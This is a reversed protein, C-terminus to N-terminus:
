IYNYINNYIYINNNNSNNNLLLIIIIYIYIDVILGDTFFLQGLLSNGRGRQHGCCPDWGDKQLEQLWLRAAFWASEM